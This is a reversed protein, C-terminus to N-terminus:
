GLLLSAMESGHNYDGPSSAVIFEKSTGLAQGANSAIRPLPGIKRAIPRNPGHRGNQRRHQAEGSPVIGRIGAMLSALINLSRDVGGRRKSDLKLRRERFCRCSM